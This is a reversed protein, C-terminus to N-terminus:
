SVRQPEQERKSKSASKVNPSNEGKSVCFILEDDLFNSLKWVMAYAGNITEFMKLGTLCYNKVGKALTNGKSCVLHPLCATEDM